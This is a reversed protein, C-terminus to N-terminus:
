HRIQWGACDLYRGLTYLHQIGGLRRQQDDVLATFVSASRGPMAMKSRRLHHLLMALDGLGNM